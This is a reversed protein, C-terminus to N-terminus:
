GPARARRHDRVREAAYGLLSILGALGLLIALNLGFDQQLLAKEPPASGQRYVMPLAVLTIMAAMVLFAQLYRRPRDPVWRRLVAGIALVLPSLVLDSIVLAGVLWVVVRLLSTGPVDTLLRVAGYTALLVGAGATAARALLMVDIRTV